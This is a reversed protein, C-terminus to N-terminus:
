KSRLAVLLEKESLMKLASDLFGSPNGRAM